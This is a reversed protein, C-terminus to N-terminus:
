FCTGTQDKASVGCEGSDALGNREGTTSNGWSSEVGGGDTGVILFYLSGAPVNTWTFAGSTGLGCQSGALAYSAVNQLDGFILNYDTSGCSADWSVDLTSGDVTVRDSLLPDTSGFGDPAPAPGTAGTLCANDIDATIRIDDVSLWGAGNGGQYDFRLQYQSNGVQSQLDFTLTTNVDSNPATWLPVWVSGNFFEISADVDDDTDNFFIDMSLSISNVFGTVDLDIVPSTATSSTLPLFSCDGAVGADSVVAAFAGSGGSPSGTGTRVDWAGCNHAAPGTTVTWDNDFTSASSFDEFYLDSVGSNPGSPTASRVVANGDTRQTFQEVASCWTTSSPM